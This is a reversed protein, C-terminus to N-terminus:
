MITKGLEVTVNVVKKAIGVHGNTTPHFTRILNGLDKLPNSHGLSTQEAQGHVQESAMQNLVEEVQEGRERFFWTGEWDPTPEKVGEECFRHGEFVEDIDVYVAKFM